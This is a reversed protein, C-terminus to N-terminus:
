VFSERVFSRIAGAWRAWLARQGQIYLDTLDTYSAGLDAVFWAGPTFGPTFSGSGQWNDHWSSNHTWTSADNPDGVTLGAGSLTRSISGFDPDPRDGQQFATGTVGSISGPIMAAFCNTAAAALLCALAPILILKTKSM